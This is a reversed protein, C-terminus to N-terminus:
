GRLDLLRNDVTYQLLGAAARNFLQFAFAVRHQQLQQGRACSLFPTVRLTFVATRAHKRM